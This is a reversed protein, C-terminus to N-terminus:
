NVDGNKIVTMRKIVEMNVGEINLNEDKLSLLALIM